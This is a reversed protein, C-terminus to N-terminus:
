DASSDKLPATCSSSKGVTSFHPSAAAGADFGFWSADDVGLNLRQNSLRNGVAFAAIAEGMSDLRGNFRLHAEASKSAKHRALGCPQARLYRGGSRRSSNCRRMTSSHCGCTASSASRRLVASPMLQLRVSCFLLM